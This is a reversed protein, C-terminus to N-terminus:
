SILLSGVDVAKLEYAAAAATAAGRASARLYGQVLAWNFTTLSVMLMAVLLPVPVGVYITLISQVYDSFLNGVFFAVLRMRLPSGVLGTYIMDAIALVQLLPLVVTRLGWVCARPMNKAPTARTALGITENERTWDPLSSRIRPAAEGM